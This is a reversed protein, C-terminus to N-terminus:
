KMRWATTGGTTTTVVKSAVVKGTSTSMPCPEPERFTLIGVLLLSGLLALGLPTLSPRPLTARRLMVLGLVDALGRWAGDGAEALDGRVVERENPELLRSAVDVLWWAIATTM